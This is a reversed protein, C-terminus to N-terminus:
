YNSLILEGLSIIIALISQGVFLNKLWGRMVSRKEIYLVSKKKEIKSLIEIKMEETM